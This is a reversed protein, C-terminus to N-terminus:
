CFGVLSFLSQFNCFRCLRLFLLFNSSLPSEETSSVAFQVPIGPSSAVHDRKPCTTIFTEKSDVLWYTFRWEYEQLCGCEREALIESSVHPLHGQEGLYRTYFSADNTRLEWSSCVVNNEVCRLIHSDFFQTPFRFQCFRLTVTLDNAPHLYSM